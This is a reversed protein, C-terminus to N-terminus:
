HWNCHSAFIMRDGDWCESTCYSGDPHDPDAECDFTGFSGGNGGESIPDECLSQQDSCLTETNSTNAFGQTAISAWLFLTAASLKVLSRLM